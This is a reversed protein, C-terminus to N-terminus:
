YKGAVKWVLASCTKERSPHLNVLCVFAHTGNMNADISNSRGPQVPIAVGRLRDTTGAFFEFLRAAREADRTITDHIPRGADLTDLTGLAQAYDRIADAIGKQPLHRAELGRATGTWAIRYGRERLTDAVALAPYVHGGTGGAMILVLPAESM